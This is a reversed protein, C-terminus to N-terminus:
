RIRKGKIKSLRRQTKWYFLFARSIIDNMTTGKEAALIKLRQRERWSCRWNYRTDDNRYMENNAM